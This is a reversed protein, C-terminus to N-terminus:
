SPFLASLLFPYSYRRTFAEKEKLYGFFTWRGVRINVFYCGSMASPPSLILSICNIM